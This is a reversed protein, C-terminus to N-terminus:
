RLSDGAWLGLRERPLDRTSTCYLGEVRGRLEVAGAPDAPTKSCIWQTDDWDQRGLEKEEDERGLARRLSGSFM